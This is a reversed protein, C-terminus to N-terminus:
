PVPQELEDERGRVGSPAVATPDTPGGAANRVDSPAVDTPDTPDGAANRVDSPAVATPDTPDGAAHCARRPEPEGEVDALDREDDDDDEDVPGPNRLSRIHVMGMSVAAVLAPGVSLLTEEVPVGAIHALLPTFM